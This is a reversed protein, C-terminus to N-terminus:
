RSAKRGYQLLIVATRGKRTPGEISELRTRGLGRVSLTAGEDIQRDPKLTVQHDVQVRGATILSAAQGRSLSWAASLLADLRLSAVTVRVAEASSGAVTEPPAHLVSVSVPCSGAKILNAAIYDAMERLVFVHAGTEGVFLDGIKERGIGLGLIAGLLDRHSPAKAKASWSVELCVVPWQPIWDPDAFAVVRREADTEECSWYACIGAQRACIDAQAQEAPSLFWAIQAIGTKEARAALEAMRKQISQDARM